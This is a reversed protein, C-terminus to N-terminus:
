IEVTQLFITFFNTSLADSKFSDIINNLPYFTTAVRPINKLTIM